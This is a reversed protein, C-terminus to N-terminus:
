RKIFEMDAFFSKISIRQCVGNKYFYRHLNGGPFEIDYSHDSAKEIEFMEIFRESFLKKENLPENFYLEIATFNIENKIIKIVENNEYVYYESNVKRVWNSEKISGNLFYTFRSSLYNGKQDLESQYLFKINFSFLLKYDVNSKSSYNISSDANITQIVEMSGIVEEDVFLDYILTDREIPKQARSNSCFCCLTVLVIINFISQKM